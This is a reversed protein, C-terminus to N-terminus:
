TTPPQRGNNEVIKGVDHFLAALILDIDDTEKYACNFTQLCHELVDKEPHYKEEQQVGQCRQLIDLLPKFFDIDLYM